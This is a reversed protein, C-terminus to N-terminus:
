KKSLAAEKYVAFILIAATACLGLLTLWIWISLVAANQIVIGAIFGLAIIVLPSTSIIRQLFNPGGALQKDILALKRQIDDMAITHRPSPVYLLRRRGPM